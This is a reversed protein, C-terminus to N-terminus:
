SGDPSWTPYRYMQGESADETLKLLDDGDPGITFLNGDTGVVAIRNVANDVASPAVDESLAVQSTPQVVKVSRFYSLGGATLAAGLALLIVMLCGAFLGVRWLRM